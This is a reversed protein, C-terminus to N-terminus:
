ALCIAAAAMAASTAGVMRRDPERSGARSTLVLGCVFGTVFTLFEAKAEIGSDFLNYPLFLVAAPTLRLWVPLPIPTETPRFRDWVACAILLGYTGAIAGWAGASVVVPHAAISVLGGLIGALMYVTAFALRGAVRELVFGLQALAGINVAFAIFGSHIFTAVVLRWWEGNTTRPGFNAGWGVLTEPNGLSGRGFIMLIFVIVNLAVIALTVLPLRMQARLAD